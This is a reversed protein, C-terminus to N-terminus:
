VPWRDGPAADQVTVKVRLRLDAIQLWDGLAQVADLHGLVYQQVEAVTAGSFQKRAIQEGDLRVVVAQVFGPRM